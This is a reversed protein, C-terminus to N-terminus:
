KSIIFDRIVGAMKESEDMHIYHGSEEFIVLKAQSLNVTIDRAMEIGTNRDHLAGLVLVPLQLTRIRELLGSDRNNVIALRISENGPPTDQTWLEELLRASKEKFFTFREHVPDKTLSWAPRNRGVFPAGDQLLNRIETRTNGETIAMFGFLQNIALREWDGMTPAELIVREVHQPYALAYELALEGGFSHGMPIIKDLGLAERLADLDKVLLEMSYADPQEPPESRGCGRQEYYIITAFEEFVPGGVREMIWNHGGPGGHIAFIPVSANEAGAIKVWHKIGNAEIMREGNQM